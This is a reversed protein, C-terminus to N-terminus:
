SGSGASLEVADQGALARSEGAGGVAHGGELACSSVTVGRVVLSTRAISYSYPGLPPLTWFSEWERRKVSRKM